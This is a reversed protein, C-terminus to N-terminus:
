TDDVPLKRLASLSFNLQVGDTFVLPDSVWNGPTEYVAIRDDALAMAFAWAIQHIISGYGSSAYRRIVAFRKDSCNAPHQHDYIWKQAFVSNENFFENDNSDLCSDIKEHIKHHPGGDYNVVRCPILRALRRFNEDALRLSWLHTRNFAHFSHKEVASQVVSRNVPVLGYQFRIINLLTLNSQYLFAFSVAAVLVLVLVGVKVFSRTPNEVLPIYNM